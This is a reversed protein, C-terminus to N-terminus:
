LTEVEKLQIFNSFSGNRNILSHFDGIETIQGNEMYVLEDYQSLLDPNLNHTITLITIDPIALLASEIEYATRSDVASTGEDLVLIPKHSILARAVAVRQRQGGSLNIGNEGVLTDLGDSTQSLFKTVGSLGLAHNWEQPSYDRHLGINEKISEDFMYVNQHIVAIQSLFNDINLAKLEQGDVTIDGCYNSYSAGLLRILTTKGSGSAGIIAYKKNHQFTIDVDNLVKQAAHYGFSVKKFHIQNSFTSKQIGVFTSPQTTSLDQIRELVPHAGKIRPLCQMVISIPQVFTGSLEVLALLMGATMQGKLVLYATVLAVLLQTGIAIFQSIGETVSILRDVSYKKNTLDKNQAAFKDQMQETLQYSRIIDYGSFHDKLGATFTAFSKSMLEQKHSIPKGLYSPILYMTVLSVLMIGTILPSYYLLTVTAMIFILIYQLSQLMPLLMNEEITKIDNTLASLYDASNVKYYQEVDRSLIGQYLKSRMNRTIRAILKKTCLSNLTTVIVVALIYIIVMSITRHFLQWNQTTVSDIINELLFASAIAIIAFITNLLTCFLLLLKNEKFIMKM